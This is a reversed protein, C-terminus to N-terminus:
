GMRRIATRLSFAGASPPAPCPSWNPPRRSNTKPSMLTTQCHLYRPDDLQVVAAGDTPIHCLHFAGQEDTTVALLDQWCKPAVIFSKNNLDTVTLVTVRAHSVPQHQGDVVTGDLRGEEALKLTNAGARLEAKRLGMGPATAVVNGLVGSIVKGHLSPGPTLADDPLQCCGSADTKLDYTHTNEYLTVYVCADSVPKAHPGLVKITVNDAWALHALVCLLLCCILYKM